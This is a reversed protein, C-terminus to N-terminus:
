VIKFTAQRKCFPCHGEANEDKWWKGEPLKFAAYLPAEFLLAELSVFDQPETM